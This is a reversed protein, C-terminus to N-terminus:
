PQASRPLDSPEVPSATTSAANGLAGSPHRGKEEGLRLSAEPHGPLYRAVRTEPDPNGEPMHLRVEVELEFM